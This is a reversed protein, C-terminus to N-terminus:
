SRGEEPDYEMDIIFQYRELTELMDKRAQNDEDEQESIYNSVEILTIIPEEMGMSKWETLKDFLTSNYSKLIETYDQKYGNELCKDLALFFEYIGNGIENEIEM